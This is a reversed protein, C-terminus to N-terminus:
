DSEQEFSLGYDNPDYGAERILRLAIERNREGGYVVLCIVADECTENSQEIYVGISNVPDSRDYYELPLKDLISTIREYEEIFKKSEEDDVVEALNLIEDPNELYYDFGGGADLLYTWIRKFEGDAISFDFEKTQMDEMSIEVHYDGPLIDYQQFNDYRQGNLEIVAESPAVYVDITATKANHFMIILIVVLVAVVNLFALLFALKHRAIFSFM